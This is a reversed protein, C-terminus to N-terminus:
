ILDSLNDGKRALLIGEQALRRKFTPLLAVEVGGAPLVFFPRDETYPWGRTSIQTRLWKAKAALRDMEEANVRHPELYLESSQRGTRVGVYYDWYAENEDFAALREASEIDLSEVAVLTGLQFKNQHDAEIAGLGDEIFEGHEPFLHRNKAM